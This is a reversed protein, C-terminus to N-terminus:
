LPQTTALAEGLVARAQAERFDQLRQRLIPYKLSLIQVALLAANEAGAIGVTAVPVGKPMQVISLLSDLGNLHQSPVPLGIVPATTHAAIVGALHAAGGAAAIFVEIGREPAQELYELLQRPTRHASLVRTECAVGLEELLSAAKGIVPLDSKSGCLIAVLPAARVDAAPWSIEFELEGRDEEVEVELELAVPDGVKVDRDGLRATGTAKIQQVIASIEELAQGLSMERRSEM